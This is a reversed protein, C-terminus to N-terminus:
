IKYSQDQRDQLVESLERLFNNVKCMVSLLKLTVTKTSSSWMLYQEVLMLKQSNAVLRENLQM